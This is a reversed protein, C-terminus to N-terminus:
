GPLRAHVRAFATASPHASDMAVKLRRISVTVIHESYQPPGPQIRCPVPCGLTGIGSLRSFTVAARRSYDGLGRFDGLPAGPPSPSVDLLM